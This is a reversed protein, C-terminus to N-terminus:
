RIISPTITNREETAAHKQIGYGYKGSVIRRRCRKVCQVSEFCDTHHTVVSQCLDLPGAGLNVIEKLLGAKAGETETLARMTYACRAAVEICRRLEFGRTGKPGGNRMRYEVRM